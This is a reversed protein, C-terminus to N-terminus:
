NGFLGFRPLPAPRPSDEDSGFLGLRRPAGDGFRPADDEDVVQEVVTGRPMQRVVSTAEDLNQRELDQRRKREAFKREDSRKRAPERNVEASRAAERNSDASRANGRENRTPAADPKADSKVAVPTAPQAQQLPPSDIAPASSAITAAPALVTAVSAPQPEAPPAASAQQPAPNSAATSAPATSTPAAGSPASSPPAASSTVRELRNPPQVASTTIMAGGAFGISIAVVVTGIGAFYSSSSFAM